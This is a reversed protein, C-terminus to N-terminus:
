TAEKTLALDGARHLVVALATLAAPLPRMIRPGLTVAAAGIGGAREVEAETWGGEPGVLLCVGRTGLDVTSLSELGRGEYLVIPTLGAETAATVAGAINAPEHVEPLCGRQGLEAGARAVERWRRLKSETRDAELKVVCREALLPQFSSAGAESAYEIIRELQDGKLLAAAIRV